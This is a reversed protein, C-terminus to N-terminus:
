LSKRDCDQAMTVWHKSNIKINLDKLKEFNIEIM